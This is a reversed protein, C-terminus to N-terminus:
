EQGDSTRAHPAWYPAQRSFRCAGGGSSGPAASPLSGRCVENPGVRRGKHLQASQHLSWTHGAGGAAPLVRVLGPEAGRASRRQFDLRRGINALRHRDHEAVEDSRRREALAGIRLRQALEHRAIVRLKARDKLSVAARDLLEDSIRRHRDEAERLDVLVVRKARDPRCDLHAIGDRREAERHADADVGALDDRARALCEDGAIGHVDGGPQLLRGAGVFHQDARRGLPEHARPDSRVRCLRERQLALALENRREAHALEAVVDRRERPGDRGREDAPLRLELQQLLRQLRGDPGPRRLQRRDDSRRPDALRAERALEDPSRLSPDEDAPAQRVALPDRVPRELLHHRLDPVHPRRQLFTGVSVERRHPDRARDSIRVRGGRGLLDRPTRPLEELRHGPHRRQQDDEVVDVPGLGREEVQDFIHRRECLLDRQQDQARSSGVEEVLTRRPRSGAGVGGDEHELRQGRIVAGLEHAVEPLARGVGDLPDHLGGFAVRQEDFLEDGRKGLFSGTQSTGGVSCARSVARM